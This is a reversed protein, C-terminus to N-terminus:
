KHRRTHLRVTRSTVVIKGKAGVSGLLLKVRRLKHARALKRGRANLRVKVTASKGAPIVFTASGLSRAAARRTARSSARAGAGARTVDALALCDKVSNPCKARFAIETLAILVAPSTTLKALAVSGQTATDGFFDAYTLACAGRQGESVLWETYGAGTWGLGTAYGVQQTVSPNAFEVTKTREVAQGAYNTIRLTVSIPPSELIYDYVAYNVPSLHPPAHSFNGRFAGRHKLSFVFYDLDSHSTKKVVTPYGPDNPYRITWKYERIPSDGGSSASADFTFIQDGCPPAPV